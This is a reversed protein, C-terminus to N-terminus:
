LASSATAAPWTPATKNALATEAADSVASAYDQLAGYLAKAQAVTLTHQVPPTGTDRAQLTVGGGPFSGAISFRNLKEGLSTVSGQDASYTGSASPTLAFTITVGARLRAGFGPQGVAAFAAQATAHQAPTIVVCGPCSGDTPVPAGTANTEYLNTFSAGGPGAGPVGFYTQAQVPVAFLLVLMIVFAM